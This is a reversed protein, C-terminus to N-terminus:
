RGTYRFGAWASPSEFNPTGSRLLALQAARLAAPGDRHSSYTRHFEIMLARTNRDEVSWTSGIVGGVGATLFARSLGIGRRPGSRATRCAALVVLRVRRLDLRALEAATIKGEIGEDWQRALVLYSMDPFIDVFMAHGAFHVVGDLLLASRLAPRTTNAGKLITEGSYNEAIASAEQEANELPELRPHEYRREFTPNSILLVGEAAEDTRRRRAERLSAAFRVSHGEILYRGRRADYLAAFPVAGEEDGVVVLPVEPDLRGEVPRVLWEYLLSLDLLLEASSAGRELRDNVRELTRAFQITDLVTRSVEVEGPGVTWILLTDRIRTYILGTEGAIPAVRELNAQRRASVPSTRAKDLYRLIAAQNRLEIEQLLRITDVVTSFFQVARPSITWTILTDRIRAYPLGHAPPSSRALDLYALAKGPHGAALGRLVLAYTVDPTDDFYAPRDVQLGPPLKHLIASHLTHIEWLLVAQHHYAWDPGTLSPMPEPLLHPWQRQFISNPNPRCSWSLVPSGRILEQFLHASYNSFLVPQRCSQGAERKPEPDSKRHIIGTRVAM